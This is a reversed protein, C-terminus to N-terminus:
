QTSCPQHTAQDPLTITAAERAHSSPGAWPSQQGLPLASGRPGLMEPCPPPAGLRKHPLQMGWFSCQLLNVPACFPKKHGPRQPQLSVGMRGRISCGLCRPWGLPSPRARLSRRHTPIPPLLVRLGDAISHVRSCARVCGVGGTHPRFRGELACEQPTCRPGLCPCHHPGGRAQRELPQSLLRPRSFLRHQPWKKM